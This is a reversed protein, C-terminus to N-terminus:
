ISNTPVHVRNRHDDHVHRLYAAETMMSVIILAGAIVQKATDDLRSHDSTTNKAQDIIVM